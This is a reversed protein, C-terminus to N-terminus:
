SYGHFFQGHDLGCGVCDNGYGFVSISVGDRDVRAKATADSRFRGLVAGVNRGALNLGKETRAEASGFNCRPDTLIDGVDRTKLCGNGCFKGENKFASESHGDSGV